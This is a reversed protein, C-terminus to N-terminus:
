VHKNKENKFYYTFIQISQLFTFQLYENPFQIDTYYHLKYRPTEQRPSFLLHLLPLHCNTEWSKSVMNATWLIKKQYFWCSKIFIWKTGFMGREGKVAVLFKCSCWPMLLYWNYEEAERVSIIFGRVSAKFFIYSVKEHNPCNKQCIWKAPSLRSTLLLSIIPLRCYQSLHRRSQSRSRPGTSVLGHVSVPGHAALLWAQVSYVPDSSVLCDRSSTDSRDFSCFPYSINKIM